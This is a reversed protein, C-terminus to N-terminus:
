RKWPTDHAATRLMDVHVRAHLDLGTPTLIRHADREAHMEVVVHVQVIVRLDRVSPLVSNYGSEFRAVQRLARMASM